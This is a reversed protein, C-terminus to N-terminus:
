AEPSDRLLGFIDLQSQNIIVGYQRPMSRDFYASLLNRRQRLLSLLADVHKHEFLVEYGICSM